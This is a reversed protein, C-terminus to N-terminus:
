YEGYESESDQDVVAVAATSTASKTAVRRTPMRKKVGNKQTIMVQAVVNIISTRHEDYSWKKQHRSVHVDSILHSPPFYTIGAPWTHQKFKAEDMFQTAYHRILKDDLEALEKQQFGQNTTRDYALYDRLFHQFESRETEDKMDLEDLLAGVKFDRRNAKLYEQLLRPGPGAESSTM